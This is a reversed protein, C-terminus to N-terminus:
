RGIGPSPMSSNQMDSGSSSMCFGSFFLFAKEKQRYSQSLPLAHPVQFTANGVVMGSAAALGIQWLLPLMLVWAPQDMRSGAHGEVWGLSRLLGSTEWGEIWYCLVM